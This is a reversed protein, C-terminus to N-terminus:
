GPFDVGDDVGVVMGDRRQGFGQEFEKGLMCVVGVAGDLSSKTM